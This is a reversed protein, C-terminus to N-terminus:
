ITQLKPIEKKNFDLVFSQHCMCNETQMEASKIKEIEHAMIENGLRRYEMELNTHLYWTGHKM